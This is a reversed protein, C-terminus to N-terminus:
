SIQKMILILLKLVDKRMNAIAMPFKDFLEISLKLQRM